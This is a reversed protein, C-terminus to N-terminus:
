LPRSGWPARVAFNPSILLLFLLHSQLLFLRLFLTSPFPSPPLLPPSPVCFDPFTNRLCSAPPLTNTGVPLPCFPRPQSTGHPCSAPTGAWVAGRREQSRAAAVRHPPCWLGGNRGWRSEGSGPWGLSGSSCRPRLGKGLGGEKPRERRLTQGEKQRWDDKAAMEGLLAGARKIGDQCRSGLPGLSVGEQHSLAVLDAEVSWGWVRWNGEVGLLLGQGQWPWWVKLGGSPM